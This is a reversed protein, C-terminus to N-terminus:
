EPTKPKEPAKAPPTGADKKPEEGCGAFCAVFGFLVAIALLRKMM